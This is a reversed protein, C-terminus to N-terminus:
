QFVKDKRNLNTHTSSIFQTEIMRLHLIPSFECIIFIPLMTWKWIKVSMESYLVQQKCNHFIGVYHLIAHAFHQKIRSQGHININFPRVSSGLYRNTTFESLWYITHCPNETSSITSICKTCLCM